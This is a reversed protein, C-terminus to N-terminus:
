GRCGRSVGLVVAAIFDSKQLKVRRALPDGRRLRRLLRMALEVIVATERRLGSSFVQPPLGRATAILAATRDLLGDLV